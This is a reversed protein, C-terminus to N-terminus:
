QETIDKKSRKNRDPTSSQVLNLQSSRVSFPAGVPEYPKSPNKIKIVEVWGESDLKHVIVLKNWYNCIDGVNSVESINKM